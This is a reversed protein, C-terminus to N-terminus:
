PRFEDRTFKNKMAGQRRKKLQKTRWWLEILLRVASSSCAKITVFCCLFFLVWLKHTEGLQRQVEKAYNPFLNWDGFFYSRLSSFYFGAITTSFLVYSFYNHLPLFFYHKCIDRHCLPVLQLRKKTQNSDSKNAKQFKFFFCLIRIM